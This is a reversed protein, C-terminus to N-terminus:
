ICALATDCLSLLTTMIPPFPRFLKPEANQNRHMPRAAVCSKSCRQPLHLDRPFSPAARLAACIKDPCSRGTIAGPKCQPPARFLLPDANKRWLMPRAAACSKSCSQPLHLDPVLHPAARLVAFPAHPAHAALVMFWLLAAVSSIQARVRAKSASLSTGPFHPVRGAAIYNLRRHFNM